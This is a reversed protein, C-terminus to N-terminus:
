AIQAINLTSGQCAALTQRAASLVGKTVMTTTDTAFTLGSTASVVASNSYGGSFYAALGSNAGALRRVSAGALVGKTVMSVTDTSFVLGNNVTTAASAGTEGGAFYGVTVSNGAALEVTAATLVGKSVMATTDTAFTLGDTTTTRSTGTSTDGGSFYGLTSSNAGACTKRAVLLVGKTVMTTTDTAFTLGNTTGLPTSGSSVGGSFYGITPSNASGHTARNASLSGKTVQATTDSAFTIGDTISIPSISTATSGGAFYGTSISNVGAMACRTGSLAGKTVQAVTDTAFDLGDTTTLAPAAAQNGGAFYARAAGFGKVVSVNFMNSGNCQFDFIDAVFPTTSLTPTAGNFTYAGGFGMTRSGAGDQYAILRAFQQKAMGSPNSLTRNGALTVDAFTGNALNWSISAADTLTQSNPANVIGDQTGISIERIEYKTSDSNYTFDIYDVAGDVQVASYGSISTSFRFSSGLVVTYLGAAQKIRLTYRQGNVGNTPNVVTINETLVVDFVNGLSLDLALVGAASAATTQVVGLFRTLGSSDKSYWGGGKTFLWNFGSPPNNAPVASCEKVLRYDVPANISGEFEFGFDTITGSAPLGDGSINITTNTSFSSSRVVGRYWVSAVKFVYARGATFISTVDVGAVSHVAANTITPTVTVGAPIILGAESFQAIHNEIADIIAKTVHISIASGSSHTAAQTDNYGRTEITATVTTGTISLASLLIQENNITMVAKYGTPMDWSQTGLPNAVSVAFTFTGSTQSSLLQASTLGSARDLVYLKIFSM